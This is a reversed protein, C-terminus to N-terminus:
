VVLSLLLVLLFGVVSIVTEMVSWSKITEGVTLGFYGKRGDRGCADDSRAVVSLALRRASRTSAMPQPESKKLWTLSAPKQSTQGNGAYVPPPDASPLLFLATAPTSM